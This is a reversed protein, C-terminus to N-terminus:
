SCMLLISTEADWGWFDWTDCLEWNLWGAPLRFAQATRSARETLVNGVVPMPPMAPKDEMKQRPM